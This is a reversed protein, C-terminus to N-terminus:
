FLKYWPLASSSSSQRTDSSMASSASAASVPKKEPTTTPTSTSTTTQTTAAAKPASKAKWQKVLEAYSQSPRTRIDNGLRDLMEIAQGVTVTHDFSTVTLPIAKTNALAFAYPVFWTDTMNAEAYPALAYARAIIKSAEAFTVVKNPNFSGDKYGHALGDRMAVCLEKAYKHSTPVDTYLLTFTPPLSPAIDWFCSDIQEQTYLHDVVMATLSARTMSSNTDMDAPVDLPLTMSSSTSRETSPLVNTIFKASAAPSYIVGLLGALLVLRSSKM